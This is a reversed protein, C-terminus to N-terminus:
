MVALAALAYRLPDEERALTEDPIFDVTLSPELIAPLLSPHSLIEGRGSPSPVSQKVSLPDL